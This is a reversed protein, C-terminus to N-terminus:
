LPISSKRVCHSSRCVCIILHLQICNKIGQAALRGDAKVGKEWVSVTLIEPLGCGRPYLGETHMSVFAYVPWGNGHWVCM